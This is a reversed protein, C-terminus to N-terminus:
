GNKSQNFLFDKERKSLSEYGSKSIKDLIRDIEKQRQKADANYEEDTMNRVEPGRKVKLRNRERYQAQKAARKERVEPRKAYERDRARFESKHSQYYAQTHSQGHESQRYRKTAERAKEHLQPNRAKREAALSLSRARIFISRTFLMVWSNLVGIAVILRARSASSRSQRDWLFM